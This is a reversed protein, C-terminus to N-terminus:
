VADKAVAPGLMALVEAASTRRQPDPARLDRCPPLGCLSCARTPSVCLLSLLPPLRVALAASLVGPADFSPLGYM